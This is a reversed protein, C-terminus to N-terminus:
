LGDLFVKKITLVAKTFVQRVVAGLLHFDGDHGGEQDWSRGVINDTAQVFFIKKIVFIEVVTPLETPM